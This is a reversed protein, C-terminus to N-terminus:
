FCLARDGNRRDSGKKKSEGDYNISCELKKVERDFRSMGSIGKKKGQDRRTKLRLLLKLIEGEVSETTFGLTKSFKALSSEDWSNSPDEREELDESEQPRNGMNKEGETGMVWLNGDTLVARLPAQHGVGKDIDEMGLVGGEVLARDCGSLPSFSFLVWDGGFVVPISEYRSAETTLAEKTMQARENEGLSVRFGELRRRSLLRGGGDEKDQVCSAEKTARVEMEGVEAHPFARVGKIGGLGPEFGMGARGECGVISGKIFFPRDECGM